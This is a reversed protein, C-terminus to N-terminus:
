NINKNKLKEIDNKLNNINDYQYYILYLVLLFGVTYIDIIKNLIVYSIILIVTVKNEIVLDFIDKISFM